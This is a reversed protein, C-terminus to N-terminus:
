SPYCASGRQSLERRLMLRVSKRESVPSGVSQSSAFPNNLDFDSLFHALREDVIRHGYNDATGDRVNAISQFWDM